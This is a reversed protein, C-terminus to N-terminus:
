SDAARDPVRGVFEAWLGRVSGSLALLGALASIALVGALLAYQLAVGAAEDRILEAM